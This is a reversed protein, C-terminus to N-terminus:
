KPPPSNHVYQVAFTCTYLATRKVIQIWEFQVDFRCSFNSNRNLRNACTTKNKSSFTGQIECYKQENKNKLM